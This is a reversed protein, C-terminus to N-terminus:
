SEHLIQLGEGIGPMVAAFGRSELIQCTQDDLTDFVLIAPGAGSVVAPWGAQRLAVLIDASAAMATSRYDQHLKDRTAEVLLEPNHELAHVLLASRAANFAADEHPIKEPLAARAAETPLVEVPLLLTTSVRPHLAINVAEARGGSVWSIVAGGYVAPAANDPHGEFDCALKLIEPLGFIDPREIMGAALGLGAVVAAASSGLGRSQSIANHCTLEVGFRPAGVFDLGRQLARVVLHSDDTPLEDQGEGLIEVRSSGTILRASVEDYIGHAMGLCDFGPGLNGSTAPVKVRCTDRALRM